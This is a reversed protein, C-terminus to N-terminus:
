LWDLVVTKRTYTEEKEVIVTQTKFMDLATRMEKVLSTLFEESIYDPYHSLRCLIDCAEGIETGDLKAYTALEESLLNIQSYNYSM